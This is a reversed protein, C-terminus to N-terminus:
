RPEWNHSSLPEMADDHSDFDSATSPKPRNLFRRILEELLMLQIDNFWASAAERLLRVLESDPVDRCEIM